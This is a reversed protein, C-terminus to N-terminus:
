EFNHQKKNNIVKIFFDILEQVHADFTFSLRHKEANKQLVKMRQSNHLKCALDHANTYFIGCDMNQICSQMAVIHGTNDKQITPLGAAMMTSIRAPINLDNWECQSIDGYNNSGFCHLWGADYKSFERVWQKASVRHHVHFHAPAVDKMERIMGSWAHEYSETYLHIHIGEEALIKVMDIDIGVMRGAVVTHIEGDEESLKPSFTDNFIDGKPLDGDLILSMKSPPIFQEYWRKIETNLFIQGDSEHYLAILKDWIGNVQSMFPGEKFHWVFPIDGCKRMVEYCFSVAVSNLMAYIIDPKIKAVENEWNRFDIEKVNGFPLPGVNDFSYGYDHTWLGYLTHGAEEFAYIREPNYSLDGVILIKLGNASPTVDKRLYKYAEAEDIMIHDSVQYRIPSQINYYSRYKNIHGGFNESMIKHRQHPHITWQCTELPKYVFRGKDSLKYWFTKYLDESVFEKRETWRCGINKHTTQVLQLSINVPMGMFLNNKTNIASDAVNWKMMTHVLVVDKNKAFEKAMCELHHPYYMDDSPLYAIYDYKAIDLAKNIAAGLGANQENKLYILRNDSLFDSLFEETNDTCGDNVIILEWNHFTQDFLSQIARRIFSAQNYTPM